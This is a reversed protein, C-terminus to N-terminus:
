RVAHDAHKTMFLFGFFAFIPREFHLWELLRLEPKRILRVNGITSFSETKSVLQQVWGLLIQTLRLLTGSAFLDTTELHFELGFDSLSFLLLPTNNLQCLGQLPWGENPVALQHADRNVSSVGPGVKGVGTKESCHRGVPVATCVRETLFFPESLPAAKGKL